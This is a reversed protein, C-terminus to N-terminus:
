PTQGVLRLWHWGIGAFHSLRVTRQLPVVELFLKWMTTVQAFIWFAIERDVMWAVSQKEEGDAEVVSMVEVDWRTSTGCESQHCLGSINM